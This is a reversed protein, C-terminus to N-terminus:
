NSTWIEPYMISLGHMTKINQTSAGLGLHVRGPGVLGLTAAQMAAVTPPRLYISAIGTGVHIRRSRALLASVLTCSETGWAEGTWVSEFGRAEAQQVVDVCLDFPLGTPPIGLGIRM